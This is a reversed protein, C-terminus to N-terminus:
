KKFKMNFNIFFWFLILTPIGVWWYWERDPRIMKNMSLIIYTITPIVWLTINGMPSAFERKTIKM